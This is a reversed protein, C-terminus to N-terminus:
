HVIAGFPDEVGLDSFQMGAKINTLELEGISLMHTTAVKAGGNLEIWNDWTAKVGGVPIIKVWMKWAKPVGNENLIWLYSDGPTVGGSDYSVMLGTGEEGLDVLSRSTGPDFAKVVPNLWFSDNCFFSWAKQMAKDAKKGTLEEGNKWAKGTITTTHLLVKMDGWVVEVLDRGKDWLYDHEGRFTWTVIRTTDWAEKNVALMMKSALDDAEPGQLGVPKRENLVLLTGVVLLILGLLVIGIWKLVKKM